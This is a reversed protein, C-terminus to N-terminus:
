PPPWSIRSGTTASRPSPGPPSWRSTTPPPRRAASRPAVAARRRRRSADGRVPRGPGARGDDGRRPGQGARLGAPLAQRGRGRDQLCPRPNTRPRNSSSRRAAATRSRPRSAPRCCAPTPRRRRRSSPTRARDSAEREARRMLSESDSFAESLKHVFVLQSRGIRIVDGPQSCGTARSWSSASSAHRQPQRPRPADVPRRVPVGRCPQPQVARGQHRDPQDARPRHDGVPRAGAPVRREM